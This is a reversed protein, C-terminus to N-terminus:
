CSDRHALQHKCGNTCIIAHTATIKKKLHSTSATLETVQGAHMLECAHCSALESDHIKNCLCLRKQMVFPQQPVDHWVSPARIFDTILCCHKSDRSGTSVDVCM